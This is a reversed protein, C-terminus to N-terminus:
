DRQWRSSAAVLVLAVGAIAAGIGADLAFGSLAMAEGGIVSGFSIGLFLASNNLALLFARRQPFSRGLSSQQAPFFFQAFISLVLLTIDARWGTGARASLFTLGAALGALSILMTKRTGLRDALQGGALTGILAGVGYFSIARAVEPATLGQDTMWAGLYTYVSYIATAWFVTPLLRLAMAGYDDGAGADLVAESAGSDNPWAKHNAAILVVSLLALVLFPSRWGWRDAILTGAPAGVSIALLLGSVAISMWTARREPPAAEGVGAYILPSVGAAAAGAIVRAALLLGFNPALATFVNAVGFGFLCALLTRRRGFRDALQGFLSASVLYTLSFVTVSFGATADSRDFAAAIAPLLPSVIFLDTGVVFLTIWGCALRWTPRM